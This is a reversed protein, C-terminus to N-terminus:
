THMSSVLRDVAANTQDDLSGGKAKGYTVAADIVRAYGPKGAAALILSPNTTADQLMAKYTPFVNCGICRGNGPAQLRRHSTM